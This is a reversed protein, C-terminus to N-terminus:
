HSSFNFRNSFDHIIFHLNPISSIILQKTEKKKNCMEILILKILNDVLTTQM